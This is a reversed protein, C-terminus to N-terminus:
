FYRRKEPQNVKSLLAQERRDRLEELKIAGCNADIVYDGKEDKGYNPCNSDSVQRIVSFYFSIPFIFPEDPKFGQKIEGINKPLICLCLPEDHGNSLARQTSRLFIQKITKSTIDRQISLWTEINGRPEIVTLKWLGKESCAIEFECSTLCDSYYLVKGEEDCYYIDPITKIGYEDKLLCCTDKM